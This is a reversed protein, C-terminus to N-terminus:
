RARFTLFTKQNNTESSETIDNDADVKAVYYCYQHIGCEGGMNFSKSMTLTEGVGLSSVNWTAVLTGNGYDGSNNAYVKVKFNKNVPANGNNSFKVTITAPQYADFASPIGTILLMRLDYNGSTENNNNDSDSDNDNNNNNNNNCNLQALKNDIISSIEDCSCGTAAQGDLDDNGGGLKLRSGYYYFGALMTGAALVTLAVSVITKTRTKTKLMTQM